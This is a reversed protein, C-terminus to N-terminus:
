KGRAQGESSEFEEDAELETAVPLPRGVAIKERRHNTPKYIDDERLYLGHGGIRGLGQLREAGIQRAVGDGLVAADFLRAAVVLLV